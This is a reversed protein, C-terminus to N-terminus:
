GFEMNKYSFKYRSLISIFKHWSYRLKQSSSCGLRNRSSRLSCEYDEHESRENVKMNNFEFKVFDDEQSTKIPIEILSVPPSTTIPSDCTSYKKSIKLKQVKALTRDMRSRSITVLFWFYCRTVLAQVVQNKIIKDNKVVMIACDANIWLLFLTM